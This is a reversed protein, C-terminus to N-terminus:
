NDTTLILGLLLGAFITSATVIRKLTIRNIARFDILTYTFSNGYLQKHVDCLKLFSQFDEASQFVQCGASYKNILKTAGSSEARHINIGFNGTESKGNYFDLLSDRDYDRIVTVPQMQVLASYLGKHMGIAYANKYQGQSLIATGQEYSPNSLWFTGPDTTAPYVHYNWKGDQKKYFVHIEDDFSNAETSKSRLGVINLQYPKTNLEYGYDSLIAKVRSLM